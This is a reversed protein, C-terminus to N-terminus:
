QATEGALPTPHLHMAVAPEDAYALPEDLVRVMELYRVFSERLV